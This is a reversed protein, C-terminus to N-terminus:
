PATKTLNWALGLTWTSPIDFGGQEAFLGAYDSFEDMSMKTQYSAALTLGPSVEGLWGLKLGYGMSTDTGNNTLKTPDSSFGRALILWAM